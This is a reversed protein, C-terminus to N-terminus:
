REINIIMESGKEVCFGKNLVVETATLELQGGDEVQDNNLEILGKASLKVVGGEKIDFAKNTKIQRTACISLKGSEEVNYCFNSPNDMNTLFLDRVFYHKENQTLKCDSARLFTEPLYGGKIISILCDDKFTDGLESKSINISENFETFYVKPNDMGNYFVVSAESMDSSTISICDSYSLSCPLKKPSDLWVKIAPDGILTRNFQTYKNNVALGANWMAEGICLGKQINEGFKLEMRINEFDWGTRTNGLFAVGGYNGAVTYGSGMNYDIPKFITGKKIVNEFPVIDCSLSYAIGPKNKNNLCDWSNNTEDINLSTLDHGYSKDAKIYRWASYHTNEGSCAIAVAEGHGQISSIGCQSIGTIVESGSPFNETFNTGGINDTMIISDRLNIMPTLLSSYKSHQFQRSVFGKSLYESDGLGPDLEYILLKNVYNSIHKPENALLRGVDITPQYKQDELYGFKKDSIEYNIKFDTVLDSFYIDSPIFPHDDFCKNSLREDGPRYHSFKRIPASTKSDGVILLKIGTLKVGESAINNVYSKLWERVCAEKDILVENYGISFEPTRLIEEVSVISVNFGMQRKWSVFDRLSPKLSEPTIIVYYAVGSEIDYTGSTNAQPQNVVVSMYSSKMGSELSLIPNSGLNDPSVENYDLSIEMKQILQVEHSNPFYALTPVLVSVVHFFGKDIFDNLLYAECVMDSNYIEYNPITFNNSDINNLNQRTQIPYLLHSILQSSYFEMNNIKISYGNSNVPVKFDVRKMPVSPCGPMYADESGPAYFKCYINGDPAYIETMGIEQPSLNLFAQIRASDADQMGLNLLILLSFIYIYHTKTM